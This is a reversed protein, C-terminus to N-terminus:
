VNTPSLPELNNPCPAIETRFIQPSGLQLAHASSRAWNEIAVIYNGLSVGGFVPAASEGNSQDIGVRVIEAHGAETDVGDITPEIAVTIDDAFPGEPLLLMLMLPYSRKAQLRLPREGIKGHNDCLIAMAAINEDLSHFFVFSVM